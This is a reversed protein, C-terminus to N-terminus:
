DCPVVFTLRRATTGLTGRVNSRTKFFFLFSENRKHDSVDRFLTENMGQCLIINKFLSRVM